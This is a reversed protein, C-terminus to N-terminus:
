RRHLLDCGACPWKANRVSEGSAKLSLHAPAMGEIGANTNLWDTSPLSPDSEQGQVCTRFSSM